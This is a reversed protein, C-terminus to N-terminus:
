GYQLFETTSNLLTKLRLCSLNDNNWPTKLLVEMYAGPQM